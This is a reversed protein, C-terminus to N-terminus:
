EAGNCFTLGQAVSVVHGGAILDALEQATLPWIVAGRPADDPNLHAIRTTPDYWAVPKIPADM